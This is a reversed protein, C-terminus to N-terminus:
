SCEAVESGALLQDLIAGTKEADDEEAHRKFKRGNIEFNENILYVGNDWNDTNSKGYQERYVTHGVECKFFRAAIMEALKDLMESKTGQNLGLVRGAQLFAEVSARGGNWHLHIAPASSFTDFAIVARNGM